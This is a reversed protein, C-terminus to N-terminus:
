FIFTQKNLDSSYINGETPYLNVIIRARRTKLGRRTMLRIGLLIIM